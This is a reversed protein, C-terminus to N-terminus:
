EDNRHTRSFNETSTLVSRATEQGSSPACPTARGVKSEAIQKRWEAAVFCGNRVRYLQLNVRRNGQADFALNGSLGALPFVVPFLEHPARGGAQRLIATLLVVADYGMVATPSAEHGFRRGFAASFRQREVTMETEAALGPVAFGEAGEGATRLFGMSRLRGPGALVGTFGASRLANAMRAATMSDLWLLIGEPRNRLLRKATLGVNMGSLKVETISDIM